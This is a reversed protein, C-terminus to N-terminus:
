ETIKRMHDLYFGDFLRTGLDAYETAPIEKKLLRYFERFLVDSKCNQTATIRLVGNNEAAMIYTPLLFPTYCVSISGVHKQLAEPLRVGGVYSIQCTRGSSAAAIKASILAPVSTVPMPVAKFAAAMGIYHNVDTIVNEPQLELDLRSRMATVQLGLDMKSMAPFYPLVAGGAANNGAHDKFIVREDVATGVYIMQDSIGYVNRFAQAALVSLFPVPTTDSRKAIELVSRIPCTLEIVQGESTNQFREDPRIFDPRGDEKKQFQGFPKVSPDTHKEAYPVFGYEGEETQLDGNLPVEEGTRVYYFYLLAKLFTLCGRGDALGHHCRFRLVQGVASLAFLFGHVADEGLNVSEHDTLIVPEAENVAFRIENNIIVPCLSFHPFNKLTDCLAERMAKSDTEEKLRVEYTIVSAQSGNLLYFHILDMAPISFTKM